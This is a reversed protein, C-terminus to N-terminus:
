TLMKEAEHRRPHAQESREWSRRAGGPSLRPRQQRGADTGSQTRARGRVPELDRKWKLKKSHSGRLLLRRGLRAANGQRVKKAKRLGWLTEEVQPPEEMSKLGACKPDAKPRADLKAKGPSCKISPVGPDLWVSTLNPTPGAALGAGGTLARTHASVHGATPLAQNEALRLPFCQPAGSSIQALFARSLGMCWEDKDM